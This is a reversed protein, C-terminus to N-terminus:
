FGDMVDDYARQAKEQRLARADRYLDNIARDFERGSIEGDELQRELEMEEREFEDM